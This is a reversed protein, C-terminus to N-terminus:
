DTCAVVTDIETFMLSASVSKLDLGLLQAVAKRYANLQPRYHDVRETLTRSGITVRDTKYDVLEAAVPRGDARAVVVRDLQGRVLTDIGGAIMPVVFSRERWVELTAASGLRAACTSRDLLERVNPKGCASDFEAMLQDFTQKPLSLDSVWDLLQEPNRVFDDMWEIQEFWRHLVTGRDLSASRDFSLTGLLNIFGEGEMSSPSVVPRNRSQGPPPATLSLVLPQSESTAHDTELEVSATAQPFVSNKAVWLDVLPAAQGPILEGRLVGAASRPMKVDGGTTKPMQPHVIMEVGYEARTIAVYLACLEEIVQRVKGDRDIKALQGNLQRLVADGGYTICTAPELVQPRDLMIGAEGGGLFDDDLDPLIVYKFQRGKSAHITMVRVPTVGAEEVRKVAVQELFPRFEGGDSTFRHAMEILQEFRRFNRADCSDAILALWRNLMQGLGSDMIETRLRSTTKLVEVPNMEASINLAAGLPSVGVHYLAATDSPHDILHLLSLAACVASDDTLPNGGEGSCPIQLRHLEQMATAIFKKRRVLIAITAGPDAQCLQQVKQAALTLANAQLEAANDGDACTSLRCFGARKAHETTHEEFWKSWVGAAAPFHGDEDREKLAPNDLLSQFIRNVTDIVVQSSRFSKVLSQRDLQPWRRILEDLLRPEANRWGYL